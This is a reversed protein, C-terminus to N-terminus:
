YYLRSLYCLVIKFISTCFSLSLSFYFYKDQFCISKLIDHIYIYIKEFDFCVLWFFQLGIKFKLDSIQEIDFHRINLFHFNNQKKYQQRYKVVLINLKSRAKCYSITCLPNETKWISPCMSNVFLIRNNVCGQM